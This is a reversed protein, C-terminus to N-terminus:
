IPKTNRCRPFRTCGWFQEQSRSNERVKMPHGDPCYQTSQTKVNPGSESPIKTKTGRRTGNTSTSESVGVTPSVRSVNGKKKCSKCHHGYGTRLKSNAFEKKDKFINCKRCQKVKGDQVDKLMESQKLIESNHGGDGKLQNFLTSLKTDISSVPDSGINFKNIRLM